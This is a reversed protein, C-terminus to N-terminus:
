VNMDPWIPNIGEERVRGDGEGELGEGWDDVVVVDEVRGSSVARTRCCVARIMRAAGFELNPSPLSPPNPLPSEPESGPM